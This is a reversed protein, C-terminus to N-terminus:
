DNEPEGSAALREFSAATEASWGGIVQLVRGRDDLVVSLPISVRGGVYLEAVRADNTVQVPYTTGMSAVFDGVRDITDTDISLGVLDVGALAFRPALEELEPMERRCPICYTAWVNVLLRRGPRLLDHLSDARQRVLGEAGPIAEPAVLALDPFIDGPAFELTALLSEQTSLPDALSFRHEDAVRVGEGEVFRLATGAPIGAAGSIAGIRDVQGSPWTVEVWDARPASGLGFLLRPDHQALFGSGGSKIKTLTGVPTAVRVVAGFADAGSATGVLEVRVFGGDQGVNNRFLEHATGQLSVLFIDQDGDNDFDAFVAGRGDGIADVGSVGSVDVFRGDGVGLALYDREYGSFSFGEKFIASMHEDTYDESGAEEVEAEAAVVHRWFM